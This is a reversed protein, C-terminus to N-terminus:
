DALLLRQEHRKDVGLLASTSRSDRQQPPQEPRPRLIVRAHEEQGLIFPKVNKYFWQMYGNAVTKGPRMPERLPQAYRRQVWREIWAAHREVWNVKTKGQRTLAHLTDLNEAEEPIGQVFGFQRM